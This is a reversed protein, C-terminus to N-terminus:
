VQPLRLIELQNRHLKVYGKHEMAKLLRSIVVRSSGLDHAIQEHTRPILQTHLSEQQKKLYFVLREDMSRFAVQELSALVEEFRQRYTQLVYQYWSRHQQMLEEMLAIPLILVETEEDAVATLGSTEQRIACIMSIACAQGAELFYLFFEQGEDDQRYVKVRGHLIIVSNKIYQGSDMLIDDRKFIKRQGNATLKEIVTKELQPFIANLPTDM